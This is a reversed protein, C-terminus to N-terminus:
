VLCDYELEFKDEAREGADPDWSLTRTRGSSTSDYIENLSMKSMISPSMVSPSMVSPSMVSPSMQSPNTAGLPQSFPVTSSLNDHDGSSTDQMKKGKRGGPSDGGDGPYYDKKQPTQPSPSLGLPVTDQSAAEEPITTGGFLSGPSISHPGQHLAAIKSGM